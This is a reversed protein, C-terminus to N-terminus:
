AATATVLLSGPTGTEGVEAVIFQFWRAGPAGALSVGVAQRIEDSAATAEGMPQVALARTLMVGAQPVLTYDAGSPAAGAITTATVVGDIAPLFYWSDDDAAPTEESFSVMPFILPYCGAAAADYALHLCVARKEAVSIIADSRSYAGSAALAKEAGATHFM